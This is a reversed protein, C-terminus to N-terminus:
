RCQHVDDTYSYIAVRTRTSPWMCIANEYLYRLFKEVALLRFPCYYFSVIKMEVNQEVTKM